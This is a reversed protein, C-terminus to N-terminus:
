LYKGSAHTNCMKSVRYSGDAQSPALTGIICGLKMLEPQVEEFELQLEGFELQLDNEFHNYTKLLVDNLAKGTDGGEPLDVLYAYRAKEPLCM